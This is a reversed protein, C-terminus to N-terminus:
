PATAPWRRTPRCGARAMTAMARRRVASRVSGAGEALVQEGSAPPVSSAPQAGESTAAAIEPLGGDRGSRGHTLYQLSRAVVEAMPGIAAGRPSVGTGLLAVIHADSWDGLGAERDATLSPAYWGLTPIM